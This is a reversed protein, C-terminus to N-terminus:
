SSFYQINNKLWVRIKPFVQERSFSQANLKMTFDKKEFHQLFNYVINMTNAYKYKQLKEFPFVPYDKKKNVSNHFQWLIKKLEEKSTVSQFNISNLYKIAHNSCDPCTLNSCIQILFKFFSASIRAFDQEKIKEALTHLLYWTPEGWIMKKLEGQPKEKIEEKKIIKPGKRQFTMMGMIDTNTQKKNIRPYKFHM